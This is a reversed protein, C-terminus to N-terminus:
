AVSDPIEKQEQIDRELLWRALTAMSIGYRQCTHQAAIKKDDVQIVLHDYANLIELNM